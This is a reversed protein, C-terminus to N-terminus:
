ERNQDGYASQITVRYSDGHIIRLCKDRNFLEPTTTRESENMTCIM